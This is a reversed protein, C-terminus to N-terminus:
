GLPARRHIPIPVIERPYTALARHIRKRAAFRRLELGREGFIFEWEDLVRGVKQGRATGEWPVDVGSLWATARENIAGLPFDARGVDFAQQATERPAVLWGVEDPDICLRIADYSLCADEGELQEAQELLSDQLENRTLGGVDEEGVTVGHHVRGASIGFELILLFGISGVLAVALLGLRASPALNRM